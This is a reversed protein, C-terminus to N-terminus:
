PANPSIILPFLTRLYESRPLLVNLVGGKVVEETLALEQILSFFFTLQLKASPTIVAELNSIKAQSEEDEPADTDPSVATEPLCDAQTITSWSQASSIWLMLIVMLWASRQRHDRM